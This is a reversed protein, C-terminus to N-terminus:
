SLNRPNYKRGCEELNNDKCTYPTNFCWKMFADADNPITTSPNSYFERQSNKKDWIDDANRYLGANFHTEVQAKVEPDSLDAAPKKQPNDVYDTLLVNMFPNHPTPKDLCADGAGKQQDPHNTWLMAIIVMAILPIYIFEVNSYLVALLIGGYIALRTLANLKENLKMDATPVFEILRNKHYLITYDQKWFPDEKSM